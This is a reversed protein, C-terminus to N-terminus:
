ALIKLDFDNVFDYIDFDNDFEYIGFDKVFDILFFLFINLYIDINILIKKTKKVKLQKKKQNKM